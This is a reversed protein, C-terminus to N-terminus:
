YSESPTGEASLAIAYGKSGSSTLVLPPFHYSSFQGHGYGPMTKKNGGFRIM